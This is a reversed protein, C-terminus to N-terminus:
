NISVEYKVDENNICQVRDSVLPVLFCVFTSNQIVLRGIYKSINKSEPQEPQPEKVSDFIILEPLYRANNQIMKKGDHEGLGQFVFSFGALFIFFLSCVIPKTTKYRSNGTLTIRQNTSDETDICHM